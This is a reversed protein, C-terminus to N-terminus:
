SEAAARRRTADRGDQIYVAVLAVVGIIVIRAYFALDAALFTLAVATSTVVTTAGIWGLGPRRSSALWAAALLLGAEAGLAVVASVVYLSLPNETDDFPLAVFLGFFAAACAAAALLAIAAIHRM